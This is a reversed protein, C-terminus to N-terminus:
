DPLLVVEETMSRPTSTGAADLVLDLVSLVGEVVRFDEVPRELEVVYVGGCGVRTRLVSDGEVGVREFRDVAVSCVVGEFGVDTM